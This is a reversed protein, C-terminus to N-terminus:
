VVQGNRVAKEQLIRQEEQAKLEQLRLKEEKRARLKDALEKREM